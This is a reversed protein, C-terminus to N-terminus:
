KNNDNNKDFLKMQSNDAEKKQRLKKGKVTEISIGEDHQRIVTLVSYNSNFVNELDDIKRAIKLICDIFTGSKFSIGDKLIDEKFEKDTMSFEIPQALKDYIGRWKYKGKKLVPSIIEITANDDTIPELNDSELIFKEFDSREIFKPEEIQKKNEDLKVTSLRKVKPYSHLAKYFNSKHKLIKINNTIIYEIKEVNINTTQINKSELEKKLLEINIKQAEINLKKEEISLQQEEKDLKSKKLPIRSMLFGLTTICFNAINIITQGEATGIFTYFEKLGGEEYAETEIKIQVNLEKSIASVIQLLEYECKNRIVADMSHTNDGDSFYYHLELRNILTEETM